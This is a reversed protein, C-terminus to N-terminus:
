RPGPPPGAEEVAALGKDTIRLWINDLLPDWEVLGLRALEAVQRRVTAGDMGLAQQLEPGSVEADPNARHALALYSLITTM